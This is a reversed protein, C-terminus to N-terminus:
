ALVQPGVARDRDEIRASRLRKLHHRGGRVKRQLPDNSGIVPVRDPGPCYLNGRVTMHRHRSRATQSHTATIRKIVFIVLIQMTTVIRPYDVVGVYTCPTKRLPLKVFGGVSKCVIELNDIVSFFVRQYLSGACASRAVVPVLFSICAPGLPGGLHRGCRFHSRVLNLPIGLYAVFPEAFATGLTGRTLCGRCDRRTDSHCRAKRAIRVVVITTLVANRGLASRASRHVVSRAGVIFTPGTPALPGVPLCRGNPLPGVSANGIHLCVRLPVVIVGIRADDCFHDINLLRIGLWRVLLRQRRGIALREGVNVQGTRAVDWAFPRPPVGVGGAYAIRSFM